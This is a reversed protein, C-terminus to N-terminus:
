ESEKIINAAYLYYNHQGGVGEHMKQLIDVCREREANVAANWAMRAADKQGDFPYLASQEYWEEFTM